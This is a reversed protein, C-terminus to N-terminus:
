LSAWMQINTNGRVGWAIRVSTIYPVQYISLVYLVTSNGGKKKEKRKEKKINSIALQIRGELGM